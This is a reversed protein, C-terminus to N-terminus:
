RGLTIRTREMVMTDEDPRTGDVGAAHDGYNRLATFYCQM